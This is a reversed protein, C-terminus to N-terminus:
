PLDNLRRRTQRPSEGFRLRYDASAVGSAILGSTAMLEAVSCHDHERDQLLGRLRHLRMRKAEAMPSHGLEQLFHYQLQRPSVAVAHSLEVVSFREQLREAMWQRAENVTTRRRRSTFREWRPSQIQGDFWAQLAERLHDVAHIAGAPRQAIAVALHRAQRLVAQSLSGAALLPPIPVAQAPLWSSPILISIGEIQESTEGDMADGPRFLLGQGPEALWQRGNVHEQSMGRLPLWLVSQHCQERKLRLRGRGQIHVVGCDGLQGSRMRGEFPESPTLLESRHHGLTRAVTAEWCGFDDSDLLTTLGEGSLETALRATSPPSPL